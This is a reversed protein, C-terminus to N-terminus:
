RAPATAPRTAAALREVHVRAVGCMYDQIAYEEAARKLLKEAAARHGLAEQHLGLYLHAYFMRQRLEGADPDGQRCAKLVDDETANGSFLEHVKMMPIRTDGEIPILSKRAADVGKWRAVCLFHWAANEVDDPNVTRHLEFQRAGDEFRGAYYLAIGRQWHHPKRDPSLELFRDFDAISLEIQGAMFRMVGRSQYYQPEAGNKQIEATLEEIRRELQSREPRDAGAALGACVILLLARIRM